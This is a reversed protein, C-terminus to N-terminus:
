LIHSYTSLIQCALIGHVFNCLNPSTGSFCCPSTKNGTADQCCAGRTLPIQIKRDYNMQAFWGKSSKGVVLNRSGYFGYIPRGRSRSLDLYWRIVLLLANLQGHMRYSFIGVIDWWTLQHRHYMGTNNTLDKLVSGLFDYRGMLIM